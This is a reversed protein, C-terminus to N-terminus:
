VLMEHEVVIDKGVEGGPGKHRMKIMLWCFFIWSMKHRSSILFSGIVNCPAYKFQLLESQM